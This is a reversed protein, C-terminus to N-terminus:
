SVDQAVRDILSMGKGMDEGYGQRDIGRYVRRRSQGRGFCQGGNSQSWGEYQGAMKDLEIM